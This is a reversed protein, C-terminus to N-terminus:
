TVKLDQIVKSALARASFEALLKQDDRTFTGGARLTEMNDAVDGPLSVGVVLVPPNDARLAWRLAAKRVERLRSEGFDPVLNRANHGMVFSGLVKMALVGMGLERARALCLERWQLNAHSLMTDMGKPFYGYALFVTDFLKADILRYMPQFAAHGTIGVFRCLKEQRLKAVEDYIQMARDYGYYEYVPGHIQLCDVYDTRLQKLSMEVSARVRNAGIIGAKEWDVGVKTALYVNERVDKLAEGLISESEHYNRSTDFYRIGAEYAERVMKLRAAFPPLDVGYGKGWQEVMASGGFALVPLRHGTKGFERSPITDRLRIKKGPSQQQLRAQASGAAGAIALTLSGRLIDRRSRHGGSATDMM